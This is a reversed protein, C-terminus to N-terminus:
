RQRKLQLEGMVASLPHSMSLTNSDVIDILMDGQGQKIIIKNDKEEYSGVVPVGFVKAYVKGDNHFDLSVHNGSDQYTGSVKRLCGGLLLLLVFAAFFGRRGLAKSASVFTSVFTSVTM